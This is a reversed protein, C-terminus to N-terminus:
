RKRVWGLEIREQRLGDSEPKLGTRELLRGRSLIYTLSKYKGHPLCMQM